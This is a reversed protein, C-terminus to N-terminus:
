PLTVRAVSAKTHSALDFEKGNYAMRTVSANGIVIALPQLGTFEEVDGAKFHRSVVIKGEADSVEVWSEGSFSFGLVGTGVAKIAKREVPKTVSSDSPTNTSTIAIQTKPAQSPQPLAARRM